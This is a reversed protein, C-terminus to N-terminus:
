KVFFMVPLLNSSWDTQQDLLDSEGLARGFEHIQDSYKLIELNKGHELLLRGLTWGILAQLMAVQSGKYPDYKTPDLSALFEFGERKIPDIDKPYEIVKFQWLMLQNTYHAYSQVARALNGFFEAWPENWLGKGYRPWVNKELSARLDGHSKKGDQWSMLLPQAYTEDQLGIDVLTLTEVCQRILCIAVSHNGQENAFASIQLCSSLHLLACHPISELDSDKFGLEQITTLGMDIIPWLLQSCLILWQPQNSM